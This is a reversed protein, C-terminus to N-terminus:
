CRQESVGSGTLTSSSTNFVLSRYSMMIDAFTTPHDAVGARRVTNRDGTLVDNPRWPRRPRHRLTRREREEVALAPIGFKTSTLPDPKAIRADRVRVRCRGLDRPGLGSRRGTRGGRDLRLLPGSEPVQVKAGASRTVGLRPTSTGGHYTVIRGSYGVMDHVRM